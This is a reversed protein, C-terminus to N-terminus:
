INYYFHKKVRHYVKSVRLYVTSYSMLFGIKAGSAYEACNFVSEVGM